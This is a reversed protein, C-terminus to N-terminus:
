CINFSKLLLIKVFCHMLNPDRLLNLVMMFYCIKYCGVNKIELFQLCCKRKKYKQKGLTILKHFETEKTRFDKEKKVKNMLGILMTCM